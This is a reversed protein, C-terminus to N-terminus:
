AAESGNPFYGAEVLAARAQERARVTADNRPCAAYLKALASTLNDLTAAHVAVADAAGKIQGFICTCQGRGTERM